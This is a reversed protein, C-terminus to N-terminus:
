QLAEAKPMVHICGMFQSMREAKGDIVKRSLHIQLCLTDSGPRDTCYSCWM